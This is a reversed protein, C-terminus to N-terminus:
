NENYQLTITVQATDGAAVGAAIQLQTACYQSYGSAALVTGTSSGSGYPGQTSFNVALGSSISIPATMDTTLAANASTAPTAFATTVVGKLTINSGFSTLTHAFLGASIQNFAGSFKGYQYKTFSNAPPPGIPAASYVTGSAGTQCDDANKWNVNIPFNTDTGFGYQYAGHSSTLPGNDECWNFTAAM